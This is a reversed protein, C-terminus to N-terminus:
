RTCPLVRRLAASGAALRSATLRRTRSHAYLSGALPRSMQDYAVADGILIGGPAKHGTAAGRRHRVPAAAAGAPDRAKSTSGNCSRRIDLAQSEPQM